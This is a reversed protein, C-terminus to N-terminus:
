SSIVHPTHLLLYALLTNLVINIRIVNPSKLLVLITHNKNVEDFM